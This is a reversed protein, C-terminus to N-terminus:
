GPVSSSGRSITRRQACARPLASSPGEHKHPERLRQGHHALHQVQPRLMRLIKSTSLTTPTAQRGPHRAQIVLRQLGHHLCRLRKACFRRQWHPAVIGAELVHRYKGPRHRHASASLQGLRRLSRRRPVLAPAADWGGAAGATQVQVQAMLSANSLAAPRHHGACGVSNAPTSVTAWGRTGRYKRSESAAQLDGRWTSSNDRRLPRTNGRRAPHAAMSMVFRQRSRLGDFALGCACTTRSQARGRVKGHAMTAKTDAQPAPPQTDNMVEQQGM